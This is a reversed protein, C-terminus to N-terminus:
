TELALLPYFSISLLTNRTDWVTDRAKPKLIATKVSEMWHGKDVHRAVKQATGKLLM